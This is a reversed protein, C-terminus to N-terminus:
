IKRGENRGLSDSARVHGAAPWAVAGCSYKKPLVVFSTGCINMNQNPKGCWDFWARFM